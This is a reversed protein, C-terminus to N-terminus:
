SQLLVTYVMWFRRLINEGMYFGVELWGEMFITRVLLDEEAYKRVVARFISLLVSLQKQVHHSLSKVIHLLHCDLEIVRYVANVIQGVLHQHAQKQSLDSFSSGAKPQGQHSGLFFHHAKVPILQHFCFLKM